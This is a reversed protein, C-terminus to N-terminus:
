KKGWSFLGKITSAIPSAPKAAEAAKEDRARRLRIRRQAGIHDPDKEVAQAFCAYAAAEDGAALLMEGAQFQIEANSSKRDTKVALLRAAAVKPAVRDARWDAQASNMAIEWDLPDLRAAEGLHDSAEVYKKARLAAEGRKFLMRASRKDSESVFVRGESAALMRERVEKRHDEEDFAMRAAQILAFCDNALQRQADSAGVHRDPHYPASRQRFRRDIEELNVDAPVKLDFVEWSKAATLASLSAELEAIAGSPPSPPASRPPAPRPAASAPRPPGSAPTPAAASGPGEEVAEVSIGVVDSDQASETSLLGLQLLYDLALWVDDRDAGGVGIIGGLTGSRGAARILRLAAPSLGWSAEESDDPIVLHLRDSPRAGLETRLLAAPRLRELARGLLRPVTLPLTLPRPAPADTWRVVADPPTALWREGIALAVSHLADDPSRGGAIAAGLLSTLDAAGAHGLASSLGGASQLGVVRGGLFAVAEVGRGDDVELWGAAGVRHALFAVRAPAFRSAPGALGDLFDAGSWRDAPASALHRAILASVAPARPPIPLFDAGIGADLAPEVLERIPGTWVVRGPRGLEVHQAWLRDIDAGGPGAGMFVMDPREQLAGRVAVLSDGADVRHGLKLLLESLARKARQDADVVVFHGM